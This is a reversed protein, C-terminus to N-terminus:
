PLDDNAHNAKRRSTPSTHNLTTKPADRPDEACQFFHTQSGVTVRDVSLNYDSLKYSKGDTGDLTFDPAKDGVKPADAFASPLVGAALAFLGLWSLRSM